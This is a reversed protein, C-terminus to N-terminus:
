PLINEPLSFRMRRTSGKLDIGELLLVLEPMTVTTAASGWSYAFCGLELRKSYICYGSRDWFLIRVMTRRRNFFVFLHGSLPSAGIINEVCGCLGDFSKRLDVSQHCIFIRVAASLMLM